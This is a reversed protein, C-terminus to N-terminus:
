APVVTRELKGLRADIERVRRVWEPDTTAAQSGVTAAVYEGSTAYVQLHVTRVIDAVQQGPWSEIAVKDGLTYDRGFKQDPTDAVNTTLQTTAAGEALARDGDDQLDQLLDNGPRSILKEFRGWTAQEATNVREIMYRDAGTGQGGVIAATTKPADVAHSVYRLNGLGFSFRILGSKDPPQYVEFLIDTGVQRTRFGVGGGVDAIKRAVDGLPQMRDATVTVSSGVGTLAGLVLHSVRRAALASPGANGNVLARLALESNGTFTWNDVTQANPAVTPDPYVSRAAILALDDAFTITLKGVGANAGDDSREHQWKEIPGAILVDGNRIVVIRRGPMVQDTIWPYAPTIVLGSGPENFRLTIDLQTWCVIPDGYVVLDPDTILVTYKAAEVPPVYFPNVPGQGLGYPGAGYKGAGYAGM